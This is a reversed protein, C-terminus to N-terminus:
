NCNENYNINFGTITEDYVITICGSLSESTKPNKVDADDIFGAEYLEQFTVNRTYGQVFSLSNANETIWSKTHRELESIQKNYLEKKSNNITSNIVPYVILSLVSLLIIIGLIEILTFGNKM